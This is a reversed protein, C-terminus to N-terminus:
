LFAITPKNCAVGTDGNDFKLETAKINWMAFHLM